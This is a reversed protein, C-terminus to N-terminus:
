SFDLSAPIEALKTRMLQSIQITIKMLFIRNLQSINIILIRFLVNQRWLQVPQVNCKGAIHTIIHIGSKPPAPLSCSYDGPPTQVLPPSCSNVRSLSFFGSENIKRVESFASRTCSVIIQKHFDSEDVPFHNECGRYHIIPDKKM